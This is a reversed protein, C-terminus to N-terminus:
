QISIFKKSIKSLSPLFSSTENTPHRFVGAQWILILFFSLLIRSIRIIKLYYAGAPITWIETTAGLLQGAELVMAPNALIRVKQDSHTAARPLQQGAFVMMAEMVTLLCRSLFLYVHTQCYCTLDWIAPM